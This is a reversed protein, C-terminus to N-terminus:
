IGHNECAQLCKHMLIWEGMKEKKRVEISLYVNGYKEDVHSRERDTHIFSEIINHVIKIATTRCLFM